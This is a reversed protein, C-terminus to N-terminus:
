SSSWLVFGHSYQGMCDLSICHRQNEMVCCLENSSLSEECVETWSWFLVSSPDSLRSGVGCAVLCFVSEGPLLGFCRCQDWCWSCPMEGLLTLFSWSSYIVASLFAVPWQGLSKLAKSNVLPEFIGPFGIAAQFSPYHHYHLKVCGVHRKNNSNIRILLLVSMWVPILKQFHVLLILWVTHFRNM